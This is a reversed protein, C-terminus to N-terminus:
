PSKRINSRRARFLCDVTKGKTMKSVIWKAHIRWLVVVSPWNVPIMSYVSTYELAQEMIFASSGFWIVHLCHVWDGFCLLLANGSRLLAFVGNLGRVVDIEVTPAFMRNRWPAVRSRVCTSRGGRWRSLSSCDPWWDFSSDPWWWRATFFLFFCHQSVQSPDRKRRPRDCEFCCFCDAVREAQNGLLRKNVRMLPFDNWSDM